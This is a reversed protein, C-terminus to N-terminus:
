VLWGTKAALLLGTLEGLFCVIVVVYLIGTASQTSGIRATEWALWVLFLPLVFGLVWRVGLWLLTEKDLNTSGHIATWWYLDNGAVAMRLLIALVLVALIRMLPSIKMGPAILYLHGMLMATLASGLLAASTLNNAIGRKYTAQAVDQSMSSNLEIDFPAVLFVLLGFLVLCIAKGGIAGELSWLISGLFCLIMGIGLLVWVLPGPEKQFFGAVVLLGLVTLLHTRFFRPNVQSPSLFLLCGIMGCALRLVFTALM